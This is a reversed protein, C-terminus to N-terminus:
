FEADEADLHDTDTDTMVSKGKRNGAVTVERSSLGWGREEM